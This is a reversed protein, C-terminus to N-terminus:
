QREENLEREYKVCGAHCHAHTDTDTLTPQAGSIETGCRGGHPTSCTSTLQRM